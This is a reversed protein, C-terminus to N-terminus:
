NSVLSYEYNITSNQLSDGKTWSPLAVMSWINKILQFGKQLL